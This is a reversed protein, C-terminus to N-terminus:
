PASESATGSPTMRLQPTGLAAFGIYDPYITSHQYGFLGQLRKRTEPIAEAKIRITYM